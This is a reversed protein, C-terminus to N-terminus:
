NEASRKLLEELTPTEYKFVSKSNFRCPKTVIIACFPAGGRTGNVYFGFGNVSGIAAYKYETMMTFSVGLKKIESHACTSRQEIMTQAVKILVAKTEDDVAEDTAILFDPSGKFKKM